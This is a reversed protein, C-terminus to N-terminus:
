AERSLLSSEVLKTNKTYEYVNLLTVTLNFYKRTKTAREKLFFRDLRGLEAGIFRDDILLSFSM